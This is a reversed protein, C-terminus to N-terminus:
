VPEMIYTVHTTRAIKLAHCMVTQEMCGSNTVVKKINCYM